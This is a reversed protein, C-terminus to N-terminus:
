LTQLYVRWEKQISFVLGNKRSFYVPGNEAQGAKAVSQVLPLIGTISRDLVLENYLRLIDSNLSVSLKVWIKCSLKAFLVFEKVYVKLSWLLFSGQGEM